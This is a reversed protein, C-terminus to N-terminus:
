FILRQQDPRTRRDQVKLPCCKIFKINPRMLLIKKEPSHKECNDLINQDITIFRM